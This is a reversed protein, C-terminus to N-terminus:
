LREMGAGHEPIQRGTCQGVSNMSHSGGRQLITDEVGPARGPTNTKVFSSICSQKMKRGRTDVDCRRFWKKEVRRTKKGDTGEETITRPKFFYKAGLGHTM